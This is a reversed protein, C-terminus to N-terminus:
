EAQCAPVYVPTIAECLLREAQERFSAIQNTLSTSAALEAEESSTLVGRDKREILIRQRAEMSTPVRLAAVMELLDMPVDVIEM